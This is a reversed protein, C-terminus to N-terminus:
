LGSCFKVQTYSTVVSFFFVDFLSSSLKGGGHADMALLYVIVDNSFFVHLSIVFHEIRYVLHYLGFEVVTFLLVVVILCAIRDLWAITETNDALPLQGDFSNVPLM